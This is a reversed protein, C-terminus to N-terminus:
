ITVIWRGNLNDNDLTWLTLGSGGNPHASILYTAANAAYSKAPIVGSALTGGPNKLNNEWYHFSFNSSPCFNNPINYFNKKPLLWVKAHQFTNNNDFARMDAVIAFADKTMGIQPKDAWYHNPTNLNVDLSYTCDTVTNGPYDVATAGITIWARPPQSTNDYASAILIFWGFGSPGGSQDYLLKPQSIVWHHSPIVGGFFNALSEEFSKDAQGNPPWVGYNPNTGLRVATGGAALTPNADRVCLSSITSAPSDGTETDYQGPWSFDLGLTAGMAIRMGSVIVMLALPLVLAHAVIERALLLGSHFTRRKSDNSSRM